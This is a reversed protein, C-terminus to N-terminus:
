AKKVNDRKEELGKITPRIGVCSVVVGYKIGADFPTGLDILGVGGLVVSTGGNAHIWRQVATQVNHALDNKRYRLWIWKQKRRRRNKRPRSM